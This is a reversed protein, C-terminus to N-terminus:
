FLTNFLFKLISYLDVKYQIYSTTIYYIVEQDRVKYFFNFYLKNPINYIKFDTNDIFRVNSMLRKYFWCVM